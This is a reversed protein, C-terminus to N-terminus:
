ASLLPSRALSSRLRRTRRVAQNSTEPDYVVLATIFWAAILAFPVVVAWWRGIVYGLGISVAVLGVVWGLVARITGRRGPLRRTASRTPSM